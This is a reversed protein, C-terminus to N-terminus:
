ELITETIHIVSDNNRKAAYCAADAAAIVGSVDHRGSKISAIGISVGLAFNRGGAKFAYDALAAQLNKARERALALPCHELLLGFEDGGLRALTDRERVQAQFLEAVQSLVKDGAAHGANDNIAKFHDLDMFLLAHHDGDKISQLVRALRRELEGRRLLRTHEDHRVADTLQEVRNFTRSADRLLMVMGTIAQKGGRIPSITYDIPISTGDRRTLLEHRGSPRADTGALLYALPDAVPQRTDSDLLTLLSRVSSGTAASRTVGLLCVASLNIFQVVGAVDTVLVGDLLEELLTSTTLTDLISQSGYAPRLLRPTSPFPPALTHM